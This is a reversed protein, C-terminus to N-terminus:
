CSWSRLAGATEMALRMQEKFLGGARETKGSQHPAYADAQHVFIGQHETLETFSEKFEPGGDICCVEPVGYARVWQMFGRTVAEATVTPGQLYVQQLRTGWCSMNLFWQPELNNGKVMLSDMGVVVNFAYTRSLLAPRRIGAPRNAECIDCRYKLKVWQRISPSVGALRLARLFEPKKPHALNVHARHLASKQENTPEIVPIYQLSQESPEDLPQLNEPMPQLEEPKDEIVENEPIAPLDQTMFQMSQPVEDDSSSTSWQLVPFGLHHLDRWTRM